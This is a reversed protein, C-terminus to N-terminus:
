EAVPPRVAPPVPPTPAFTKAEVVPVRLLPHKPHDSKVTVEAQEGPKLEFGAPFALSIRFMRGPKIEEVKVVVGELTVAADSLGLPDKGTSRVIVSSQRVSPLPGPPVAIRAPSVEVSKLVMAQATMSLVPAEAASTKVTITARGSAEMPTHATVHLEFERGEKVTKLEALFSPNSSEVGSLTVPGDVRSVIKVVKTRNTQGDGPLTFVTIAPEIRFPNWVTGTIQLTVAPRAPATSTVKVVKTVKGDLSRSDFQVPIVGAAGPEVRKSWEGTVTCGCGPQVGTVELTAAGTNTFTFEHDLVEGANVKGFDFVESAFQIQAVATEAGGPQAGALAGGGVAAAFLLM